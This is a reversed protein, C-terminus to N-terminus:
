GVPRSNARSGQDSLTALQGELRAIEAEIFQAQSTTSGDAQPADKGLVASFLVQKWGIEPAALWAALFLAFILGILFVSATRDGTAFRYGVWILALLLGTGSLAILFRIRRASRTYAAYRSRLEHLEREIQERPMEM